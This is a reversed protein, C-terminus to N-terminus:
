SSGACCQLSTGHYKTFLLQDAIDTSCKHWSTYSPLLGIAGSRTFIPPQRHIVRKSKANIYRSRACHMSAYTDHQPCLMQMATAAGCQTHAAM